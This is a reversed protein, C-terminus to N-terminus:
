SADCTVPSLALFPVICSPAALLNQYSARHTNNKREKKRKKKQLSLSVSRAEEAMAM